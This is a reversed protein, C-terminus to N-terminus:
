NKEQKETLGAAEQVRQVMEAALEEPANESLERATLERGNVVLGGVSEVGWRLLIEQLKLTKVQAMLREAETAGGKLFEAETYLPYLDELLQIRQRLTMRRVRFWVGAAVSSEYRVTIEMGGDVSLSTSNM